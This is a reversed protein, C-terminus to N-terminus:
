IRVKRARSLSQLARIRQRESSRLAERMNVNVSHQIAHWGSLAHPARISGGSSGSISLQYELYSVFEASGWRTLDDLFTQVKATDSLPNGSQFARALHPFGPNNSLNLQDSFANAASSHSGYKQAVRGGPLTHCDSSGSVARSIDVPNNGCNSNANANWQSLFVRNGTTNHISAANLLDAQWGSWTAM